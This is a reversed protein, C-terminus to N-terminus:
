QTNHFSVRLVAIRVHKDLDWSPLVLNRYPTMDSGSEHMLVITAKILRREMARRDQEVHILLLMDRNVSHEAM